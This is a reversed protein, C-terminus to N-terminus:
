AGGVGNIGTILVCTNHCPCCATSPTIDGVALGYMHGNSSSSSSSAAAAAYISSSHPDTAPEPAAVYQNNQQQYIIQQTGPVHVEQLQQM